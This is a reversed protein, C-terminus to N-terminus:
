RHVDVPWCVVPEVDTSQLEFEFLPNGRIQGNVAFKAGLSNSCDFCKLCLALEYNIANNVVSNPCYEVRLGLVCSM